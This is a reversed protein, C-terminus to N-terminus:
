KEQFIPETINITSVGDTLNVEHCVLEHNWNAEFAAKMYTLFGSLATKRVLNISCGGFGGGMMRAGLVAQPVSSVRNFERTCDVLFDLEPCSVEYDHQLGEHTQYMLQGFTVLDGSKLAECAVEVRRIEQIVYKCRRYVVDPLRHAQQEFQEPSVDRLTKIGPLQEKMIAVGQEAEQRRVNYESDVLAHKVGSNCLVITYENTEFPFYEYELSRCDLRVVHKKKGMVSAFMDMIGCQMGVFNNEARQALKVIDMKSFGIHLMENLLHGMGSEVAASSSLGAGLPVDGGFVLNLGETKLGDKHLESIVGLLYNAWSKHAQQRIQAMDVEINDALDLAFFSLRTDQRPGAAFWIAKDIAAPLVYGGNYDTHEGILNIRGPARVIITPEEGFITQFHEIVTQPYM